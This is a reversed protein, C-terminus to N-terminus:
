QVAPFRSQFLYFTQAVEIRTGSQLQMGQAPLDVAHSPGAMGNAPMIRVPYRQAAQVHQVALWDSVDISSCADIGCEGKFPAYTPSSPPTCSKGHGM